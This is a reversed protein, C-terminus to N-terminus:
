GTPLTETTAQRARTQLLLITAGEYNTGQGTLREAHQVRVSGLGQVQPIDPPNTAATSYQLTVLEANTARLM